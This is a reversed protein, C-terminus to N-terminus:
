QPRRVARWPRADLGRFRALHERNGTAVMLTDRGGAYRFAQAALIADVDLARPDATSRGAGVAEFDREPEAM